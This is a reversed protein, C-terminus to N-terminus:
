GRWLVKWAGVLDSPSSHGPPSHVICHEEFQISKPLIVRERFETEQSETLDGYFLSLHPYSHYESNLKDEITRHLLGFQRGEETLALYARRFFSTGFELDVVRMEYSPKPELIDALKELYPEYSEGDPFKLSYVTMHSDFSPGQFEAALKGIQGNLALRQGKVPIAWVALGQPFTAEM